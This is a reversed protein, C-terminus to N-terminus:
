SLWELRLIMMFVRLCRMDHWLWRAMHRSKYIHSKENTPMICRNLVWFCNLNLVYSMPACKGLLKCKMKLNMNTCSIDKRCFHVKAGGCSLAHMSFMWSSLHAKSGMRDFYIMWACISGLFAVLVHWSSIFANVWLLAYMYCKEFVYGDVMSIFWSWWSSLWVLWLM